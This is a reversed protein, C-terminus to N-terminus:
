RSSFLLMNYGYKITDCPRDTIGNIPRVLLRWIESQNVCCFSTRRWQTNLALVVSHYILSIHVSNQVLNFHFFFCIALCPFKDYCKIFCHKMNQSTNAFFFVLYTIRFINIKMFLYCIQQSMFIYLENKLLVHIFLYILLIQIQNSPLIQSKNLKLIKAHLFLFFICVIFSNWQEVEIYM